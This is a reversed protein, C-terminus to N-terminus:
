LLGELLSVLLDHRHLNKRGQNQRKHGAENEGANVGIEPHMDDLAANDEDIERERLDGGQAGNHGDDRTHIGVTAAGIPDAQRESKDAGGNESKRSCPAAMNGLFSEDTNSVGYSGREGNKQHAFGGAFGFVEFVHEDAINKGDGANLDDFGGDEIASDACKMKNKAFFKQKDGHMM